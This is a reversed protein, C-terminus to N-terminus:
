SGQIHVSHHCFADEWVSDFPFSLLRPYSMVGFGGFTCLDDLVCIDGCVGVTCVFVMNVRGGVDVGISRVNTM